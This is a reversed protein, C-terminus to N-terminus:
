SILSFPKFLLNGSENGLRQQILQEFGSKRNIEETLSRKKNSQVFTFTILIFIFVLGIIGLIIKRNNKM